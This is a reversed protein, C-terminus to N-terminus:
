ARKRRFVIFMAIIVVVIFAASSGLIGGFEPITIPLTVDVTQAFSDDAVVTETNESGDFRATVEISYGEEWESMAFTVFYYGDALSEDFYHTATPDGETDKMVVTVNAGEIPNSLSDYIRGEVGKPVTESAAPQPLAICGVVGFAALLAILRIRRVTSISSREM